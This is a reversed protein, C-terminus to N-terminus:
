EDTWIAQSEDMVAPLQRAVQDLDRETLHLSDLLSSEFSNTEVTRQYGLKTRAALVDALHVISPLTHNEEELEWPRHHYGTALQMSLPFNWARCLGAGFTEHSAGLVAEEAQRFTLTDDADLINILKVFDTGFVQMEVVIGIDHILGALFAEDSCICNSRNALMKAGTAVAVSHTWLESANFKTGIAGRRMFKVLSAAIAVNKVARLGLLLIAHKITYIEGPMGYYVSNVLKLIRVGLVPDNAVVKNLDDLTTEPNESLRIIQVAIAPLTAIQSAKRIASEVIGLADFANATAIDADFTRIM